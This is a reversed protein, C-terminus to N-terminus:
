GHREGHDPHRDGGADHAIQDVAARAADVGPLSMSNRVQISLVEILVNMRSSVLRNAAGPNRNTCMRPMDITAPQAAIISKAMRPTNGPVWSFGSSRRYGTIQNPKPMLRIVPRPRIM